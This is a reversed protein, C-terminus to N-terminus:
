RSQRFSIIDHVKDIIMGHRIYFKLMRYHILCNKKDTFDCILKKTSTYNDRKIEKMYDDFTDPNVKRNMPAFPFNKTKEKINDTYKLDVEIFLGINNDDPTNLIDELNVDNDFKIEDDPLPQFMSHGYLNNADVYLFRKIKVQNFIDIM